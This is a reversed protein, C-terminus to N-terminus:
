NERLNQSYVQWTTHRELIKSTYMCVHVCTVKGKTYM